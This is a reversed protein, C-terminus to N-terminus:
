AAPLRFKLAVQGGLIIVDGDNLQRQTGLQLLEDNLQTGMDSLVYLTYNKHQRFIYGHRQAYLTPDGYVGLDILAGEDPGPGDEFAAPEADRPEELREFTSASLEATAPTDEQAESDDLAELDFAPEPEVLEDAEFPFDEEVSIPELEYEISPADAADDSPKGLVTCADDIALTELSTGNYFVEVSAPDQYNGPLPLAEIPAHEGAPPNLIQALEAPFAEQEEEPEALETISTHEGLGQQTTRLSELEEQNPQVDEEDIISFGEGESATQEDLSSVEGALPMGGDAALSDTDLASPDDPDALESDDPEVSADTTADFASEASEEVFDYGAAFEAENFDGAQALQAGCSECALEAPDNAALCQPCNITDAM